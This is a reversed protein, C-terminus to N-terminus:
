CSLCFYLFLHFHFVTDLDKVNFSPYPFSKNFHHPFLQVWTDDGMM